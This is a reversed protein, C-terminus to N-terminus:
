ERGAVFDRDEVVEVVKVIRLNFPRVDLGDGTVKRDMADIQAVTGRYIKKKLALFEIRDGM